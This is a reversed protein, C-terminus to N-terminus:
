PKRNQEFCPVGRQLRVNQSSIETREEFLCTLGFRTSVSEPSEAASPQPFQMRRFVQDTNPESVGLRLM